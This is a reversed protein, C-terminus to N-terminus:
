QKSQRPSQNGFARANQSPERQTSNATGPRNTTDVNGVKGTGLGNGRKEVKDVTSTVTRRRRSVPRKNETNNNEPM